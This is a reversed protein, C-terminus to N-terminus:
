AWCTTTVRHARYSDLLARQRTAYGDLTTAVYLTEDVAFRALYDATSMFDGKLICFRRPAICVILNTYGRPTEM